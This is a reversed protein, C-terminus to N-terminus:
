YLDWVAPPLPTPQRDAEPAETHFRHIQFHSLSDAITNHIGMIHKLSVSFQLKAAILYLKRTLSMLPESPSSGKHWVETIPLNDTIFIIRKGQWQSGWTICAALIAFLEKFDISQSFYKTPWRAQIWPGAYYAGFGANSADTYLCLDTSLIAFSEPIITTRNWTPLFDIWWQIDAQSQKNLTIHHHLHNVSTSLTILRRM